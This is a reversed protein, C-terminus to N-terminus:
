GKVGAHTRVVGTCTRVVLMHGEKAPVGLAAISGWLQQLVMSSVMSPPRKEV